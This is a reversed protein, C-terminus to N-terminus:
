RKYAKKKTGTKRANSFSAAVAQKNAVKAGFKRKTRAFKKGGHFESINKSITDRSDGDLMPM